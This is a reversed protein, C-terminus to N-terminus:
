AYSDRYVSITTFVGYKNGLVEVRSIYENNLFAKNKYDFKAKDMLNEFRHGEYKIFALNVGRNSYKLKSELGDQPSALWQKDLPYYKKRVINHSKAFNNDKTHTYEGDADSMFVTSLIGSTSVGEGITAIKYSNYNFITANTPISANVVNDQSIYPYNKYAKYAYACIADWITSKEKVYIYNIIETTAEWSVNPIQTNMSIISALSSNSIIGPKPENQGLLMTFGRSLFKVIFRGNKYVKTISDAMGKHLLKNQYYLEISNIESVEVDGIIVGTCQTYPTYRERTFKFSVPAKSLLFNNGHKFVLRVEEM